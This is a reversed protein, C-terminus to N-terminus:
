FGARQALGLAYDTWFQGAPPGGNCPGDSEGPGKVWLFADAHADGTATTPQAGLARGPPNCWQNGSASGLGNRSTDVVFHGGGGLETVVQDGYSLADTTRAFSATNLAFGRVGAVGALKLRRAIEAASQWNPNGADIYVTAGHQTLLGGAERILTYRTQQDAASLCDAGAIADPELVVVAPGSGVGAAVESIWARYDAPSNAGGASYSGCDRGPIHYIALTAITGATQAHAVQAAVAGRVQATPTWDGFWTAQPIRAIKDLLAANAPSSSRLQDAALDAQTGPDDYFHMGALPNGAASSAMTTGTKAAADVPVPPSSAAPTAAVDATRCGAVLILSAACALVVTM